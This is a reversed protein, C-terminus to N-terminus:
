KSQTKHFDITCNYREVAFTLLLALTFQIYLTDLSFNTPSFLFFLTLHSYFAGATVLNGSLFYVDIFLAFLRICILFNLKNEGWVLQM